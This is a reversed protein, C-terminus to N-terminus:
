SRQTLRLAGMFLEDIQSNEKASTGFIGATTGVWKLINEFDQQQVKREESPLDSKSGVVFFKSDGSENQKRATNIKNVTEKVQDESPPDLTLDFVLVIVNSRVYDKDSQCVFARALVDEDNINVIQEDEINETSDNGFWRMVLSRRGVKDSPNLNEIGINVEPLVKVDGKINKEGISVRSPGGRERGEVKGGSWSAM